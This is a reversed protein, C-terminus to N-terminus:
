TRIARGRDGHADMVRGVPRLPHPVDVTQQVARLVTPSARGDRPLAREDGRLRADAGRRSSPVGLSRADRGTGDVFLRAVNSLIAGLVAVSVLIGIFRTTSAIGSAMGAREPPVAGQLVKVTQGNLLGAGCGAVLMGFAFAPYPLHARAVLWFLVNGVCSITLGVTLLSRGSLRTLLGIPLFESTVLLFTGAAISVVGGWESWLHSGAVSGRGHTTM